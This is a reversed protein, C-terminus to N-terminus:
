RERTYLPGKPMATIKDRGPVVLKIQLTKLISYDGYDTVIGDQELHFRQGYIM